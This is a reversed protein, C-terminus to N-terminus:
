EEQQVKRKNIEKEMREHFPIMNKTMEISKGDIQPKFTTKESEQKTKADRERERVEM